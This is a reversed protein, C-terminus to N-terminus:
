RGIAAPEIPKPREILDAIREAADGDHQMLAADRQCATATATDNLLRGLTQAWRRASGRPPLRVGVGRKVLRAANDFQDHAFPVLGQPVGAALAQATTGIGGHHVLAALRPLLQDFPAYSVAHAFAPLPQPLQDAYPTILVARRKLAACSALAREFFDRGHAMASGPTFGIPPAGRDLFEVLAPDLSAGAASWRPFGSTVAQAPWDPQMPAFWAPWACVVRQPSNVWRSMVRRVPPLGLGRRIEDFGPAIVRDIFGREVSSHILRVLPAPCGSLDGVAPLVAPAQASFMCIPSLHVTVAPLGHTEQALRVPWALTSGVLATRGPQVRSLLTRHAEVLRPQMEQWLVPFSRRADWLAARQVVHQYDAETGVPTFGLGAAEIRQQFHPSTLLEVDHGRRALASGIAIFPHVDGASGVCSILFHM